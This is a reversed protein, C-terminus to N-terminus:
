AAAAVDDAVSKDLAARTLAAALAPLRDGPVLGALEAADTPLGLRAAGDTAKGDLTPRLEPWIGQAERAFIDAGTPGIRPFRTLLERLRAPDGEAQRRLRRLDGGYEDLVHQAGDGLATSMQEDVRTYHARGMADVRQQRGADRMREPTGFGDAVLERTASVALDSQVRTSLLTTLVLLRYLPAPTDKLTIGAQDAFTQGARDLLADVTASHDTM